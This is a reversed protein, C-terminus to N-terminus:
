TSTTWRIATSLCSILGPMLVRGAGDIEARKQGAEAPIAHAAVAAITNGRVLVNSPESLSASVGDFIRVDRFLVEPRTGGSVSM